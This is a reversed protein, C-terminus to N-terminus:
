DTIALVSCTNWHKERDTVRMGRKILLELQEEYGMWPKKYAM